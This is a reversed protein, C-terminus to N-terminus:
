KNQYQKKLSEAIEIYEESQLSLDFSPVDRIMFALKSTKSKLEELDSKVSLIEALYINAKEMNNKTLNYQLGVYLKEVYDDYNKIDYKRLKIAEKKCVVASDYDKLLYAIQSKVDWAQSIHPNKKILKESLTYLYDGDTEKTVATISSDTYFPTLKMTTKYNGFKDLAFSVGCYIMFVSYLVAFSNMLFDTRVTFAKGEGVNSILLVVFAMYIFQFDFDFLAHAFIVFILLKEREGGRIFEKVFAFILMIAPIWGVDLFAQLIDNHIFKAVYVGTQIEPQIYYYGMYGLGFPHKLIVILSDKWYLIRGLFTSSSLSLTLFRGINQFNGTLKVVAFAIAVVAAGALIFILRIKLSKVKKFMLFLAVFVSLVFVARSGSLLIGVALVSLCLVKKTKSMQEKSNYALLIIGILLFMAFTNSYGFTGSLRDAKYFISKLSPIFYSPSTIVVMAVGSLPVINLLKEREESTLQMILLMFLCIPLFRLFGVFSMGKDIGYFVTLFFFLLFVCVTESVTNFYFVYGRSKEKQRSIDNLEEPSKRFLFLLPILAFAVFCVTYDFFIGFFFPLLFFVKELVTFYSKEKKIEKPIKPSSKNKM